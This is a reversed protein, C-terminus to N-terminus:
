VCFFVYITNVSVHLEFGSFIKFIKLIPCPKSFKKLFSVKVQLMNGHWRDAYQFSHKKLWFVQVYLVSTALSQICIEKQRIKKKHSIEVM